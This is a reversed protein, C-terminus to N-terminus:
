ASMRPQQQHQQTTSSLQSQMQVMMQQMRKIQDCVFLTLVINM